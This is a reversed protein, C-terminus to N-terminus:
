EVAEKKLWDEVDQICDLSYSSFDCGICRLDDCFYPKDDFVGIYHSLIECLEDKHKEFNTM